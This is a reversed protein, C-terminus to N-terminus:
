LAFLAELPVEALRQDVIRAMLEEMLARDIEEQEDALAWGPFLVMRPRKEDDLVYIRVVLLEPRGRGQAVRTYTMRLLAGLRDYLDRVVSEMEPASVALPLMLPGPGFRDSRGRRFSEPSEGKVGTDHIRQLLTTQREYDVRRRQRRDDEWGPFFAIRPVADGADGYLFLVPYPQGKSPNIVFISPHLVDLKVCATVVADTMDSPTVRLGLPCGYPHPDFAGFAM